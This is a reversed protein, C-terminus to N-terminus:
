RWRFAGLPGTGNSFIRPGPRRGGTTSPPPNFRNEPPSPNPPASPSPTMAQAESPSAASVCRKLQDHTRRGPASLQAAASSMGPPTLARSPRSGNALEASRCMSPQTSRLSSRQSACRFTVPTSPPESPPTVPSSKSRCGSGVFGLSRMRRQIASSNTLCPVRWSNATSRSMWAIARHAFNPTSFAGSRTAAVRDCSCDGEVPRTCTANTAGGTMLASFSCLTLIM